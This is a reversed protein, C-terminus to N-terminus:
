MRINNYTPYNNADLSHFNMLDHSVHISTKESTLRRVCLVRLYVQVCCAYELNHPNTYVQVGSQNYWVCMCVCVCVTTNLVARYICGAAEAESLLTWQADARGTSAVGGGLEDTVDFEDELRSKGVLVTGVVRPVPPKATQGKNISHERM